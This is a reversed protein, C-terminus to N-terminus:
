AEPFFAGLVRALVEPSRLSLPAPQMAGLRGDAFSQVRVMRRGRQLALLESYDDGYFLAQDMGPIDIPQLGSPQGPYTYIHYSRFKYVLDNFAADALFDFAVDVCYSTASGAGFEWYETYSLLPSRAQELTRSSVDETISTLAPAKALRAESLEPPQMGMSALWGILTVGALVGLVPRIRKGSTSTSIALSLCVIFLIQMFFKINRIDYIADAILAALVLVLAACTFVLELMGQRYALAVPRGPLPRGEREAARLRPGWQLLRIIQLLISVVMVALLPIGAVMLNSSLSLVWTADGGRLLLWLSLAYLAMALWGIQVRRVYQKRVRAAEAAPDTELPPLTEGPQSAFVHLLSQSTVHEWGCSALFAKYAEFEDMREGATNPLQWLVVAYQRPREARRFRATQLLSLSVLEWGAQAQGNLWAEAAQYDLPRFPFLMTKKNENM